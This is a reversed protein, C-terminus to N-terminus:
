LVYGFWIFSRNKWEQPGLQHICFAVFSYAVQGQAVDEFFHQLTCVQVALGTLYTPALPLMAFVSNIIAFIMMAICLNFMLWQRKTSRLQNHFCGGLLFLLAAFFIAVNLIFRIIHFIQYVLIETNTSM